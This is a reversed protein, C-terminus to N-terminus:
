RRGSVDHRARPHRGPVVRQTSTSTGVPAILWRGNEPGGLLSAFCASSDFRPLCLWDISGRNSVLAATQGDGVLAYSEISDVM